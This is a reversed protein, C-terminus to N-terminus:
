WHFHKHSHQHRWLHTPWCRVLPRYVNRAIAFFFFTFCLSKHLAKETSQAIALLTSGLFHYWCVRACIYCLLPSFRAWNGTLRARLLSSSCHSLWRMFLVRDIPRFTEYMTHCKCAFNFKLKTTSKETECWVFCLLWVPVVITLHEARTGDQEPVQCKRNLDKKMGLRLWKPWQQVVSFSSSMKDQQHLCKDKPSAISIVLMKFFM